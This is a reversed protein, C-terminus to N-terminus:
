EEMKKLKKCEETNLRYYEDLEMTDKFYLEYCEDVRCILPRKSYISCLNGVLYKCIGDGCDLEAYLESKDLNRCCCGCCDCKFM